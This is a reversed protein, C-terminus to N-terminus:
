DWLPSQTVAGKNIESRPIPIYYFRDNWTPRDILVKPIYVLSNDPKKYIDVGKIDISEVQPAIKWRRVDFFRHGEFALEIRREHRIRDRLATGTITTPLDPLGARKRIKNVYERAVNDQGLESMAEAYNLYIEGLRFFIWPQSYGGNSRSIPLTRDIFKKLSYGTRSNDGNRKYNDAGRASPGILIPNGSADFGSVSESVDYAAPFAGRAEPRFIDGQYIVTQYFRPDRNAYPNNPNYNSAPNIAGNALYPLEGNIMEYDDVLNQSPANRGGFGGWGGYTNNTNTFTVLHGTTNNFTRVFIQEANTSLFSTGYDAPLQYANLDIIVKAADAAKQWKAQDNTPNQLPSAAYLYVRSKLAMAAHKTARGFAADGPNYKTPLDPIAADLDATLYTVVEDYPKKTFTVKDTLDYTDEVVPVSGYRWILNAYIFARVFKVEATLQKKRAETVPSNGVEALFINARRIFQYARTYYDIWNSAQGYNSINDPNWTGLLWTDDGYAEDTYKSWMHTEFGHPIAQYMGNVYLEVLNADSWAIESVFRDTPTIDLYDKNCGATLLAGALIANFFKRKMM